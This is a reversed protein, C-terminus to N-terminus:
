APDVCFEAMQKVNWSTPWDLAQRLHLLWAVLGLEPHFYLEHLARATKGGTKMKYESSPLQFYTHLQFSSAGRLLYEAAIKGTVINGTGSIPLPCVPIEGVQELARMRALVELNLDSLDP